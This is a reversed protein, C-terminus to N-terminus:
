FITGILRVYYNYYFHPIRAWESRINNDIIITDGFYKELIKGYLSNLKNASLGEGNEIIKYVEREFEAFLTQRYVTSKFGELFHNLVYLKLQESDSNDILYSSLLVENVTSAIEALFIPYQAYLHKQTTKSFYSHMSHGLEHALTFVSDISGNYNLLMLPPTDYSGWSYAGSRKGPTEYVDVWRSNLGNKAISTYSDGLVSLANLVINIAEEYKKSYDIDKILPMYVDYFSFDEIELLKKKLAIYQKHYNMKNEISKILNEYVKTPIKNPGLAAELSTKYNRLKSEIVNSKIISELTSSLTNIHNKYSGYISEYANKRLTRDTNEMLLSFNGTTVEHDKGNSDKASQFKIDANNLMSFTKYPLESIESYAAIIKEEKESLVHKSLDFIRKLANKYFSYKKNKLLEEKVEEPCKMIEPTIFSIETQISATLTDIKGKREQAKGNSTDLDLYMSSYTSLNEGIREVQDMLGIAEIVTDPSETVKGKMKILKKSLSKIKKIDKEFDSESKYFVKLDWKYKEPIEERKKM